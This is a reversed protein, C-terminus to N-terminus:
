SRKEDVGGLIRESINESYKRTMQAELHTYGQLSSLSLHGTATQLQMTSAGARAMYTTFSHRLSHFVVGSIEAQQLARYWPKSIDIKGFATKSAFVLDKCPDRESFLRKLEKVVEDVLPVSRPRGNKTIKFHALGNDFDVCQWTLSLIEGRRAGTTLGMLVICYLYSCRSERCVELLRTAEEKTLVRDRGHSEKLKILNVCPNEAVWRLTRCAYTFISSLAALYRNVTAPKRAKGKNTPADLLIRREKAVLDPTIHILAYSKFRENWYNLHRVTDKSAKRHELIGSDVYRRYLESFTAQAKHRDLNFQGLKIQREVDSAWDEAEQKREFHNSISPHGKIRVVARWCATGNKNKRKYISAM